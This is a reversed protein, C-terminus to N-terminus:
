RSAVASRLEELSTAVGDKQFRRVIWPKLNGGADYRSHYSLRTGGAGDPRIEWRGESELIASRGAALPEQQRARQVHISLGGDALAAERWELTVQRDELPWGVAHVQLVRGDPLRRCEALSSLAEGLKEPNRLTALVAETGVAWHCEAAVTAVGRADVRETRVRCGAREIAGAARAAGDTGASASVALALTVAAASRAAASRPM